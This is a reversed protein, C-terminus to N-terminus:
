AQSVHVLHLREHFHDEVADVLDLSEFEAFLNKKTNRKLVKTKMSQVSNCTCCFESAMVDKSVVLFKPPHCLLFICVLSIIDSYPM